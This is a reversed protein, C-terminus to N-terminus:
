QQASETMPGLSMQSVTLQSMNVFVELDGLGRAVAANLVTTELYNAAISLGFYIRKCGHMARTADSANSLDAIVVEAGMRRLAAARDDERRVVARVPLRRHLLREAVSRGVGGVSGAAGTVLIPAHEM